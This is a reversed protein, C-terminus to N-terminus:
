LYYQVLLKANLINSLSSKFNGWHLAIVIEKLNLNNKETYPYDAFNEFYIYQIIEWSHVWVKICLKELFDM